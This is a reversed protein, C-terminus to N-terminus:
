DRSASVRGVLEGYALIHGHMAALVDAREPSAPQLHQLDLAYIRFRYQHTGSPPCSPFYGDSHTSNRGSKAGSDHLATASLPSELHNVDRGIDYLIWHTFNSFRFLPSPVDWDVAILVYSQTNAPAGSWHLPPSVGAGLCTYTRPIEGNAGFGDSDVILTRPLEAHLAADARWQADERLMAVVLAGVLLVVLGAIAYAVYKLIRVTAV